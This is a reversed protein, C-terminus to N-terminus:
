TQQARQRRSRRSFLSALPAIICSSSSFAGGPAAQLMALMKPASLRQKPDHHWGAVIIEAVNSPVRKPLPPRIGTVAMSLADAGEYRAWPLVGTFIHWVILAAAYVDVKETYHGGGSIEPAMFRPTGVWTTMDRESSLSVNRPLLRSGSQLRSPSGLRSLPLLQEGHGELTAKIGRALGFDGIKLNKRDKTLLLNAPKLDRHVIPAEMGHLFSVGELLQTAWSLATTHSPPLPKSGFYEELSGGEMLDFVLVISHAQDQSFGRFDVICPHRIQRSLVKLEQLLLKVSESVEDHQACPLRKLAVKEGNFMGSFVEGVAGQGIMPGFTIKDCDLSCRKIRQNTTNDPM